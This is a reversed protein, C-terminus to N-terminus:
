ILEEEYKKIEEPLEEKWKAYWNKVVRQNNRDLFGYADYGANLMRVKEQIYEPAHDDIGCGNQMLALFCILAFNEKSQFTDM